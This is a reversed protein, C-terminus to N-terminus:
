LALRLADADAPNRYSITIADGTDVSIDFPAVLQGRELYQGLLSRRGILVGDGRVAADIAMAYLTFSTGGDPRVHPQGAAELWRAWHHRWTADHLLHSSGLDAPSQLREAVAPAAVPVLSDSEMEDAVPGFFISVDFGDHRLDPVVDTAHLSIDVGPFQRSIDSMRPVVWLQAISPLAAIYLTRRTGRGSRLALAARSLSDFGASLDALASAGARNLSVGRASREFLPQAAWAEVKKVHHAVAAPTTALEEAARSFSGLRAAAELARLANLSPMDLPRPPALTM